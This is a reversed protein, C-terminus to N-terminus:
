YYMLSQGLFARVRLQAGEILDYREEELAGKLVRLNALLLMGCHEEIMIRAQNVIDLINGIAIQADLYAQEKIAPMVQVELVRKILLLDEPPKKTEM